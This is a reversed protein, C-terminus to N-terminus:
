QHWRMKEGIEDALLFGIISAFYNLDKCYLGGICLIIIVSYGTWFFAKGKVKYMMYQIVLTFVFFGVGYLIYAM